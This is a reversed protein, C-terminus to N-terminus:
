IPKIVFRFLAAFAANPGLDNRFITNGARAVSNHFRAFRLRPQGQRCSRNQGM